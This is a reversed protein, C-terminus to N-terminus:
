RSVPTISVISPMNGSEGRRLRVHWRSGGSYPVHAFVSEVLYQIASLSEADRDLSSASVKYLERGTARDFFRVTLSHVFRERGWWSFPPLPRPPECDHQAACAEDVISVRQGHTDYALSVRLRARADPAAHFGHKALADALASEYRETEANAATVPSGAFVYTRPGADLASPDPLSARVDSEIGACGTLMAAAFGMAFWGAKM